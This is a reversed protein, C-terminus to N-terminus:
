QEARPPAGSSVRVLRFAWVSLGAALVTLLMYFPDKALQAGESFIRLIHAFTILAFIVGTTIIYAKMAPEYNCWPEAAQVPSVEAADSIMVDSAAPDHEIRETSSRHRILGHEHSTEEPHQGPWSASHPFTSFGERKRDAARLASDGSLKQEVDFPSCGRDFNNQLSYAAV